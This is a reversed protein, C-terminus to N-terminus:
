YYEVLVDIIPDTSAASNTNSGAHAIYFGVDATAWGTSNDTLDEDQSIYTDGVSATGGTTGLQISADGDPDVSSRTRYGTSVGSAAIVTTPSAITDGVAEDLTSSFVVKMLHDSNSSLTVVKVVVKSIFSKSPITFLANTHASKGATNNGSSFESLTIRATKFKKIGYSGIKVQYSDTAADVDAEYGLITNEAGSSIIKGADKGLAVNGSGTAVTLAFSGIATNHSNSSVTKLAEYGLATNHGGSSVAEGAKYGVFTGGEAGAHNVATGANYGVAVM